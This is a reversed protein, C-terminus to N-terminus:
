EDDDTVMHFLPKKEPVSYPDIQKLYAKNQELFRNYESAIVDYAEHYEHVRQEASLIYGTIKQLTTNYEYERQARALSVLDNVLENSARDYEEIAEQNSMSNQIYRNRKLQNIRNEYTELTEPKVSGSVKLEHLLNFMYKIKQNDDHIIRNWVYIMTDQLALYTDTLSDAKTFHVAEAPRSKQECGCCALACCTLLIGSIKVNVNM